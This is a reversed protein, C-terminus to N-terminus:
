TKVVTITESTDDLTYQATPDLSAEVMVQQLKAAAQAVAAKAKLAALQQELVASKVKWYNLEKAPVTSEM